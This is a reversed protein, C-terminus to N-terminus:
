KLFKITFGNIKGKSSRLVLYSDPKGDQDAVIELREFPKLTRMFEIIQKEGPSAELFNGM